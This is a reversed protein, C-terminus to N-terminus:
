SMRDLQLLLDNNVPIDAMSEGYHSFAVLGDRDILIVAPMRGFKILSVEQGYMDAVEHGADALGPFPLDHSSFYEKFEEPSDPGVVLM